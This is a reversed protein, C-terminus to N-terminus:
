FLKCFSLYKGSEPSKEKKLALFLLISAVLLISIIVFITVQAKKNMNSYVGKQPGKKNM